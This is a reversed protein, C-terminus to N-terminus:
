TVRQVTMPNKLLKCAIWPYRHKPAQGISWPTTQQARSYVRIIDLYM